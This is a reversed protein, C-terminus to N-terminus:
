KMGKERYLKAFIKAIAQYLHEPIFDGIECSQYLARALPPNEEIPINHKKAEEKIRLAVKDVGKAIVRPAHMKGREYQLAVAYHEPNTIVVDAKAIEAMMRSLSMERMKKRIAAKIQPNGEYLKQEEKIEEKSMKINEEYEYRKFFFDLGAIPISLAAFGLIMILTYKLLTYADTSISTTAFKFVDKLLYSVLFYSITLAIALKLLNKFLEFLTKLSFIRKLGSIPNIKELKPMLTKPSFLFGIQAINALVGVVLLPLFIPAVLYGLTKLVEWFSNSSNSPLYYFPDSFFAVYFGWLKKFAYPFYVMFLLFVTVLSASIAVEPSKAVQGEERAKKRRRPTAKETKSPDKAM